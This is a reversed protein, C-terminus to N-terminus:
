KFKRGYRLTMGTVADDYSVFGFRIGFFNKPNIFFTYSLGGNYNYDNSRRVDLFDPISEIVRVGNYFTWGSGLEISIKHRQTRVLNLHVLLNIDTQKEYTFPKGKEVGQASGYSYVIESEFGIVNNQDRFIGLGVQYGPNENFYIYGARMAYYMRTDSRNVIKPILSSTLDRKGNSSPATVNSSLALLPMFVLRTSASSDITKQDHDEKVLFSNNSEDSRKDSSTAENKLEDSFLQDTKSSYRNTVKSNEDSTLNTMFSTIEGMNKSTSIADIGENSGKSSTLKQKLRESNFDKSNSGESRITKSKKLLADVTPLGGNKSTKANKSTLNIDSNLEKFGSAKNQNKPSILSSVNENIEDVNDKSGVKDILDNSHSKDNLSLTDKANSTWFSVRFLGFIAGVLVFFFIFFWWRRKRKPKLQDLMESMQNWADPNVESKQENLRARFDKM